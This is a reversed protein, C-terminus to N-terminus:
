TIDDVCWQAVRGKKKNFTLTRHQGNILGGSPVEHKDRLWTGLKKPCISVVNNIETGAVLLLAQWLKKDQEKVAAAVDALTHPIHGFTKYWQYIINWHEEKGPDEDKVEKATLVPDPEGYWLLAERIMRSWDKFDNYPTCPMRKRSCIYARIATLVAVVLEARNNLADVVPDWTFKREGPKEMKANLRCKLVRETIDGKFKINNGNITILFATEATPKKSVGLIRVEMYPQSFLQCLLSGGIPTEVNDIALAPAGKLASAGLMIEDEKRDGTWNTVPARRGWAIAHILDVLKSKGTRPVPADFVFGPAILLALRVPATLIAALAVSRSANDKEVVGDFPFGRLLRIVMDLGNRGQEKTPYKPVKPFQVGQPDYFLGTRQDYGPKQLISGDKRSTPASIFGRLVPLKSRGEEKLMHIIEMPPNISIWSNSRKDFKKFKAARSLDRMLAHNTREKIVQFAISGGDCTKGIEGGVDVIKGLRQYVGGLKIM